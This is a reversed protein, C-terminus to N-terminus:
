GDNRGRVSSFEPWAKGIDIGTIREFLEVEEQMEEVIADRLPGQRETILTTRERPVYLKAVWPLSKVRDVLRHLDFYRLLSAGQTMIRALWQVRPTWSPNVRVTLLEESFEDAIGLFGAIESLAGRPSQQITEYLLVMVQSPSFLRYVEGMLQGFSVERRFRPESRWVSEPSGSVAGKALAHDYSSFFLDPPNRVIVIIRARPFTQHVRELARSDCLIDPDVEGLMQEDTREFLSAYWSVGRHFFRTFFGSQKVTESVCVDPHVRLLAYLWSTACKRSGIVVFDLEFESM